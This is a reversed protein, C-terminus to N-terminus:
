RLDGAAVACVVAGIVAGLPLALVARTANSPDWLGLWATTLSFLSPLAFVIVAFRIPRSLALREARASAQRALGAVGAWGLVGVLGGGYLGLCRACVPLQAGDRHFSREPRQHCVLSGAAYIAASAVGSHSATAPAALLATVWSLAVFVVCVIASRRRVVGVTDRTEGRESQERTAM